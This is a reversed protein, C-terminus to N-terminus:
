RCRPRSSNRAEAREVAIALMEPSLDPDEKRAEEEIDLQNQAIEMFGELGPKGKLVTAMVLQSSNHGRLGTGQRGFNGTLALVLAMSREMLDGHYYKPTNFGQLIHVRKAAAVMGALRRITGPSTGTIKSALEPTYAELRERLVAFVPRVDVTSGDALTVSHTGELAPDIAGLRLTKRSARALANKTADWFYLQDERGKGDIDPQRLYRGTDTRVLLPLDTQEKVFGANYTGDDIIIKAIALGLAADTGIEVPVYLDAHITSANYDPAISVVKTGNYRAEMIYHASPIRTYLPNMHWLLILDAHYWDDISSAFQFKGFTEYLGVNFDSTLANSDFVTGGLLRTLRWSPIAGHVTGGEGTGYEHIISEPGHSQVADIMGDAIDALAEDWTIREWKGEGREGTRRMPYTIREAGYMVESFCAGKQCGRPNMDPVGREVQPYQAGQEERFVVGDKTYM